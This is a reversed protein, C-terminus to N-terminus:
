FICSNMEIFNGSLFVNVNTPIKRNFNTNQILIAPNAGGPVQYNANINIEALYPDGNWVLNSGKIIDFERNVIGLSKYFYSGNEVSFGGFINFDGM